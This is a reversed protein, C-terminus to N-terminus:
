QIKLSEGPKLAKLPDTEGAAPAPDGMSAGAERPRSM